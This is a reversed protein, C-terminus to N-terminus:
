VTRETDPKLGLKAKEWQFKVGNMQKFHFDSYIVKTSGMMDVLCM